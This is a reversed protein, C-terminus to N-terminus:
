NWKFEGYNINVNFEFEFHHFSHFYIANSILVYEVISAVIYKSISNYVFVFQNMLKM